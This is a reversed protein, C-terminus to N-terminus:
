IKPAADVLVWRRPQERLEPYYRSADSVLDALEALAEVGAYGAGVFVFTLERAATGPSMAAADLRSLVHNRLHIADALDKFGLGHDALGPIPLADHLSLTDSLTYIETTATDNFFFFFFSFWVRVM